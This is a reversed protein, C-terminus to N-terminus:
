FFSGFLCLALLFFFIICVGTSIMSISFLSGTSFILLGTGKFLGIFNAFGKALFFLSLIYIILVSNPIFCPIVSFVRCIDFPYFPFVVFAEM